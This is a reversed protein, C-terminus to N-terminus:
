IKEFSKLVDFLRKYNVPKNMVSSNSIDATESETISRSNGTTFIIPTEIAKSRIEKALEIGNAQKKLKIDMLIADPSNNDFKKWFDDPCCAINTVIYGNQELQLQTARAILMEDEVILIKM